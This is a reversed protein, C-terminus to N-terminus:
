FVDKRRRLEAFVDVDAVDPMSLAAKIEETYVRLFPNTEKEESLLSPVTFAGQAIKAQVDKLRKQVAENDPTISAAFRLNEETYDHGCFLRTQDPLRMLKRLSNWMQEASGGLLRGCGGAFLTDGTWAISPSAAYFTLDHASHGRTDLVDFDIGSIARSVGGEVAEDLGPIGAHDPGIIRCGTAEKIELNGGVHDAHGHTNLIHTLQLKHEYLVRLVPEAEGPDIVIAESDRCLLYAFNDFLIRLTIVQFPDAATIIETRHAM